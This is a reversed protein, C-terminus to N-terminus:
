SSCFSCDCFVSICIKVIQEIRGTSDGTNEEYVVVGMRVNEFGLVFLKVFFIM